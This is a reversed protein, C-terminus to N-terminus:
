ALASVNRRLAQIGPMGVIALGALRGAWNGGSALGLERGPMGGSALGLERGPMGGTGGAAITWRPWVPERGGGGGAGGCRAGDMVVYVFHQALAVLEEGHHVGAETGGWVVM